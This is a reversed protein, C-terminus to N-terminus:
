VLKEISKNDIQQAITKSIHVGAVIGLVGVAGVTVVTIGVPPIVM